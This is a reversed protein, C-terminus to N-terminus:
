TPGLLILSGSQNSVVLAWTWIKNRPQKHYNLGRIKATGANESVSMQHRARPYSSRHSQLRDLYSKMMGYMMLIFDTEPWRTKTNDDNKTVSTLCVLGAFPPGLHNFILIRDVRICWSHFRVFLMWYSSFLKYLRCWTATKDGLTNQLSTERFIPGKKKTFTVLRTSSRDWGGDTVTSLDRNERLNTILSSSPAPLIVPCLAFRPTM